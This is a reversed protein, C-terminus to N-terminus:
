ELIDRPTEIQLSEVPVYLFFITTNQELKEDLKKKGTWVYAHQTFTHMIDAVRVLVTRDM